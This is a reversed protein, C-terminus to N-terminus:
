PPTQKGREREKQGERWERERGRELIFSYINKFVWLQPETSHLPMGLAVRSLPIRVWIEPVGVM